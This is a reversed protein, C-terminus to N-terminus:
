LLAVSQNLNFLYGSQHFGQWDWITWNWQEKTWPPIGFDPRYVYAYAYVKGSLADLKNYGYFNTDLFVKRNQFDTRINAKAALELEDNLLTLNAGVGAGGVVIDAGGEAYVQTNTFPTVKAYAYRPAAALEYRLGVSGRIGFSVKMPIPGVAFRYDGIKRDLPISYSDSYQLKPAKFQRDYVSNGFVAVNLRASLDGNDPAQVNANARVLEAHSNFIYAGTKGEANTQTMRGSGSVDVRANLYAYFRSKDGFWFNREGSYSGTRAQNRSQEDWQAEKLVDILVFNRNPDFRDTFRPKLQKIKLTPDLAPNLKPNIQGPNIQGPNIQGPNIQGPNISGSKAADRARFLQQELQGQQLAEQQISNFDFQQRLQDVQNTDLQQHAEQITQIQPSFREQDRSVSEQITREAVNDRLSYGLQNFEQEFRNLEAYYEGANVQRGDPLTLQQDASIVAGTAPDKLEFPEFPKPSDGKVVNIEPKAESTTDTEQARAAFTVVGLTPYSLAFLLAIMRRQYMFKSM